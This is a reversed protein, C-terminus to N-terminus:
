WSASCNGSQRMSLNAMLAHTGAVKLACKRGQCVWVSGDAAKQPNDYRGGKGAM